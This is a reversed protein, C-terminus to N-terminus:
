ISRVYIDFSFCEKDRNVSYLDSVWVRLRFKSISNKNISGTYLLKSDPKDNLSSISSYTPLKNNEFGSLPNNGTDTLYLKIFDEDIMNECSNKVKLYIQYNIKKDYNNEISFEKFGQISKTSSVGDLEKGIKDTIPLTNELYVNRNDSFKVGLNYTKNETNKYKNFLFGFGMFVAFLCVIVIIALTLQRVDKKVM